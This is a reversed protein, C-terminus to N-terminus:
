SVLGCVGCSCVEPEPAAVRVELMELRKLGGLRFVSKVFAPNSTFLAHTAVNEWDGGRCEGMLPSLKL